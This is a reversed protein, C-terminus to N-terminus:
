SERSDRRRSQVCTAACPFWIRSSRRSCRARCGRYAPLTSTPPPRSASGSQGTPERVSVRRVDSRDTCQATRRQEPVVLCIHEGRVTMHRATHHDQIPARIPIEAAAFSGPTETRLVTPLVGPPFMAKNRPTAFCVPNCAPVRQMFQSESDRTCGSLVSSKRTQATCLSSPNQPPWSKACQLAKRCYDALWSIAM